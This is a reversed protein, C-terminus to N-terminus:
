TSQGHQPSKSCTCGGSVAVFRQWCDCRRMASGCSGAKSTFRSGGGEDLQGCSVINTTLQPIYYTNILTRHEGNNCTFLITSCGEIQVVSGDGFHVMGIINTDLDVFVEKVGTMHNSAKTNFIWWKPDGEGVDGLVAYVEEEMFEICQTPMSSTIIV